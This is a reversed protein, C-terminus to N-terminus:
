SNSNSNSNSNTQTRSDPAELLKRLTRLARHTLVRINIQSKGLIEAVESVDLGDIYRLTVVERYEEKLLRLAEIIRLADSAAALDKVAAGADSLRELLMVDIVEEKVAKQRYFDIVLNRAIKYLLGGFNEIERRESLYQWAKLFVDATLDEADASSSIKFYIFRYIRPAYLDYLQGFAEPDRKNKLQYILWKEKLHVPM